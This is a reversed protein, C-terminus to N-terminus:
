HSLREILEDIGNLAPDKQKALRAQRRAESRRRPQSELIEALLMHTKASLMRNQSHQLVRRAYTEAEPSRSQRWAIFALDFLAYAYTPELAIATQLPKQAASLEAARVLLNGAFYYPLYSEPAAHIARRAEAYALDPHNPDFFPQSNPDLYRYAHAQMWEEHSGETPLFVEATHDWYVLNWHRSLALERFLAPDDHPSLLLIQVRWDQLLNLARGPKGYYIDLYDQYLPQPYEPLRGDLFITFCGKAKWGVFGGWHLPCFLRGTKNEQQLWALAASPYAEFNEGTRFAWGQVAGLIAALLLGAASASLSIRRWSDPRSFLPHFRKSILHLLATLPPLVLIIFVGIQRRSKVALFSFLALLLVDRLRVRRWAVLAGIWFSALILFFFPKRVLEPPLWEVITTTLLPNFPISLVWTYINFGLPNAAGALIVALLLGSAFLMHRRATKSRKVAYHWLAEACEAGLVVPLLVFGPHCNVWFVTLAPFFLIYRWKRFPTQIFEERVNELLWLSLILCPYTVLWPRPDFVPLGPALLGLGLLISVVFLNPWQRWLLAGLGLVSLTMILAKLLILATLGGAQWVSYLLIRFLWEVKEASHHEGLTFTFPDAGPTFGSDVWEKGDRLHIYVDPDQIPQLFLGFLLLAATTVYVVTLFPNTKLLSNSPAEM